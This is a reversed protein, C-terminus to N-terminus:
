RRFNCVKHGIHVVVEVFFSYCYCAYFLMCLSVHTFTLKDKGMQLEPSVRCTIFSICTYFFYSPVSVQAVSKGTFNQGSKM